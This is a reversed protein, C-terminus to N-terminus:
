SIYQNSEMIIYNVSGASVNHGFKFGILIYDKHDLSDSPSIYYIICMLFKNSGGVKQINSVM